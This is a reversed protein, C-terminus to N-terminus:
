FLSPLAAIAPPAPGEAPKTRKPRRITPPAKEVLGSLQQAQDAVFDDTIDKLHVPIRLGGELEVILVEGRDRIIRVPTGAKGYLQSTYLLSYIDRRLYPM